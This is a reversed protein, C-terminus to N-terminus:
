IDTVEGAETGMVVVVASPKLGYCGEAPLLLDVTITREFWHQARGAMLIGVVVILLALVVFAGTVQNVYRHTSRAM